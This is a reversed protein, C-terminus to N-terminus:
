AGPFLSCADPTLGDGSEQSRDGTEQLEQIRDLRFLRVRGALHCDARLYPIGRHEEIWYPTVTRQTLANRGATFYHMTLTRGTAVASEILPRWRAPDSPQPPPAFTRGDLLALLDHRVTEWQAQIVAQDLPPLAALLATLDAFPPPLPLTTHEGLAAYLQGALWLAAPSQFSSVPPQFSSAPFQLSSASPRSTSASNEPEQSRDGSEQDRTGPGQPFFGAARLRAALDAPPLAAVAVTPSLLEGLGARVDAYAHLQALLEPRAARCFLCFWYSCNM